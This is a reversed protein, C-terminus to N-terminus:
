RLDKLRKSRSPQRLKRLARIEIQRIRGSTVGFDQGVEEATHDSKEGIGFRMRIVKEERPTLTALLKRTEVGLAHIEPSQVSGMLAMAEAAGVKLSKKGGHVQIVAEPWLWGPEVELATAVALAVRSWALVRTAGAGTWALPSARLSELANWASESVGCAASAHRQSWGHAERIEAMRNNYLRMAVRFERTESM